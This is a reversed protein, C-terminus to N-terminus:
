DHPYKIQYDDEDGHAPYKTRWFPALVKATISLTVALLKGVTKEVTATTAVTANMIVARGAVLSATVAATATLVKAQTKDITATIAATAQLLKGPVKTLVGSVASTATLTKTLGKLVAGTVAATAQLTRTLTSVKTLSATVSATGTLLKGPIKTIASTVAVTAELTELYVKTAVMSATVAVNGILSKAMQKVMNATATATATLSKAMQKLVTASVAPTVSLTKSLGKVISGTVTATATVSQNYTTASSHTVVLKPDNATGTQDAAYVQNYDNTTPASNDLDKAWAISLQTKGSASASAPKTEGSRAIWGRGTANLTFDEYGSTSGTVRNKRTAGETGSNLSDRRDDFDGSALNNWIGQKSQTVGYQNSATGANDGVLYVSFVADSITDSAGIASTDFMFFGMYFNYTTGSELGCSLYHSTGSQVTGTTASRVTSFNASSQRISGDGTDSYFTSVTNGVKGRVINKSSHTKVVNITDELSRMLAEEADEIFNDIKTKKGQIEVDLKTGDPVLIPPNFIRFREIDVTGDPGFGIQKGNRYARAFVTIGGDIPTIETIEIKLKGREVTKPNCVKAIEFGKLTARERLNKNKLKDAINAM